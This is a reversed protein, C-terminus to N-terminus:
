EEVKNCKIYSGKSILHVVRLPEDIEIATEFAALMGKIHKVADKESKGKIEITWIM